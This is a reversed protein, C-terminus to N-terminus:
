CTFCDCDSVHTIVNVATVHFRNRYFVISYLLYFIIKSYIREIWFNNFVSRLCFIGCFEKQQFFFSLVTKNVQKMYNLVAYIYLYYLVSSDNTCPFNYMELKIQPILLYLFKHPALPCRRYPFREIEIQFSRIRACGWCKRRAFLFWLYTSEQM